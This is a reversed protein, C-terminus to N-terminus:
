YNSRAEESSERVFGEIATLVANWVDDESRGSRKPVKFSHDGGPVPFVTVRSRLGAVVPRLEEPTGFTDRAGQVFLMPVTIGVLHSSRLQEPKGPPHLPYGLFVLGRLDRDGAAALHSAIRGGMSKGGLFLPVDGRTRAERVVARFCAELKPLPDPVRRKEETYLFNFTITEIGREALGTAARAMFAHCQNAGAGHALVLTGARPTRAPYTRATVRGGSDLNVQFGEPM